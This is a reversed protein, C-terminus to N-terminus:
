AARLMLPAWWRRGPRTRRATDNRVRAARTADRRIREQRFAIEYEAAPGTMPFMDIEEAM